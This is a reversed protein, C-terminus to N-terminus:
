RVGIVQEPVRLSGGLLGTIVSSGAPCGVKRCARRSSSTAPSRRGIGVLLEAPEVRQQRDDSPSGTAVTAMPMGRVGPQERGRDEGHGILVESLPQRGPALALRGAHEGIWRIRRGQCRLDAETVSVRGVNLRGRRCRLSRVVISTIVGTVVVVVFQFPARTSRGRLCVTPRSMLSQAARLVNGAGRGNRDDSRGSRHM